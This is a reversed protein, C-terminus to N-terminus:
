RAKGFVTQGAGSPILRPGLSSNTSGVCIPKAREIPKLSSLALVCVRREEGWKPLDLGDEDDIGLLPWPM